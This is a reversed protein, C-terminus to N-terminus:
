LLLYLEWLGCLPACHICCEHPRGSPKSKNLCIQTWKGFWKTLADQELNPWTYYKSFMLQTTCCVQELFSRFFMIISMGSKLFLRKPLLDGVCIRIDDTSFSSTFNHASWIVIRHIVMLHLTCEWPVLMVSAFSYGTMSNYLKKKALVIKITLKTKFLPKTEVAWLIDLAAAEWIMTWFNFLGLDSQKPVLAVRGMLPALQPPKASVLKGLRERDKGQERKGDREGMELYLLGPTM